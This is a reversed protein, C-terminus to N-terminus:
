SAAEQRAEQIIATETAARLRAIQAEIRLDIEGSTSHLLAGGPTVSEDTIIRVEVGRLLGRHLFESAAVLAAECQPSVRVTIDRAAAMRSLGDRVTAVVIADDQAIKQRIVSEALEICLNGADVELEGWRIRFQATLDERLLQVTERFADGAEQAAAALGEQRTTERLGEAEDRAQLLLQEAQDRAQLLLQQATEGPQQLRDSRGSDAAGPAAEVQEPPWLLPGDPRATDDGLIPLDAEWLPLERLRASQRSSQVM